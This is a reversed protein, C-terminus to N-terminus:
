LGLKSLLRTSFTYIGNEMNKKIKVLNRYKTKWNDSYSFTSPVEVAGRPLRDQNKYFPHIQKKQSSFHYSYDKKLRKSWLYPDEIMRQFYKCVQQLQCLEKANFYSFLHLHLEEPLSLFSSFSPPSPSFTPHM